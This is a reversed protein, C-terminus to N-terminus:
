FENPTKTTSKKIRCAIALAHLSYRSEAIGGSNPDVDSPGSGQTPSRSKPTVLGRWYGGSVDSNGEPSVSGFAKVRELVGERRKAAVSKERLFELELQIAPNAVTKNALHSPLSPRLAYINPTLPPQPSRSSPYQPTTTSTPSPSPTPLQFRQLLSKVRGPPTSFQATACVDKVPSSVPSANINAGNSSNGSEATRVNTLM